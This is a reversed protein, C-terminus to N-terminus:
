VRGSPSSLGFCMSVTPSSPSASVRPASPHPPLRASLLSYYVVVIYITAAAFPSKTQRLARVTLHLGTVSRSTLYEPIWVGRLRPNRAFFCASPATLPPPFLILKMLSPSETTGWPNSQWISRTLSPRIGEKPNAALRQHGFTPLSWDAARTIGGSSTGGSQSFLHIGARSEGRDPLTGAM